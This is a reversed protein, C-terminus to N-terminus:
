LAQVTHDRRGFLCPPAAQRRNVKPVRGVAPLNIYNDALIAKPKM